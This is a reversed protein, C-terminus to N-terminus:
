AALGSRVRRRAVRQTVLVVASPILLVPTVFVTCVMGRHFLSFLGDMILITLPFLLFAVVGSMPLSYWPPQNGFQGVTRGMLLGVLIAVLSALVVAGWLTPEAFGITTIGLDSLDFSM